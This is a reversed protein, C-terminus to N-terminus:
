FVCCFTIILINKVVYEVLATKSIGKGYPKVSASVVPFNKFYFYETNKGECYINFVKNSPTSYNKKSKKTKKNWAKKLDGKKKPKLSM